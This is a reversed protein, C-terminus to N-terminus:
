AVCCGAQYQNSLFIICVIFFKYVKKSIKKAGSIVSFDSIVLIEYPFGLIESFKSNLYNDFKFKSWFKPGFNQFKAFNRIKAPHRFFFGQANSTHM